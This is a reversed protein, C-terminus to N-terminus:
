NSYDNGPIRVILKNNNGTNSERIGIQKLEEFIKNKNQGPIKIKRLFCDPKKMEDISESSGHVTFESIIIDCLLRM